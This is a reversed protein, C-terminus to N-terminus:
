LINPICHSEGQLHHHKRCKLCVWQSNLWKKCKICNQSCDQRIFNIERGHKLKFCKAGYELRYGKKCQVCIVKKRNVPSIKCNKCHPICNVNRLLKIMMKEGSKKSSEYSKMIRLVQNNILLKSRNKVNGFGLNKVAQTYRIMNLISIIHLVSMVLFVGKMKQKYFNKYFVLITKFDYCFKLFFAKLRDINM